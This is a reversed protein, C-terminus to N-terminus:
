MIYLIPGSVQIDIHIITHMHTTTVIYAGNSRIYKHHITDIIVRPLCLMTRMCDLHRDMTDLQMAMIHMIVQLMVSPLMGVPGITLMYESIYVIIDLIIDPRKHIIIIGDPIDMLLIDLDWINFLAVLHHNCQLLALRFVVGHM